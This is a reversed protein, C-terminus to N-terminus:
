RAKRNEGVLFQRCLEGFYGRPDKESGVKFQEIAEAKKNERLFVTGLHYRAESCTKCLSVAELLMVRAQPIQSRQLFMRGLNQYALYFKENAVIAARYSQEAKEFDELAEYVLGLNNHIREANLYLPFELGKLLVDRAEAWRKQEFYMAGLNNYVEPLRPDIEVAKKFAQEAQAYEQQRFYILGLLNRMDASQPASEVGKLAAALARVTDGSQLFEWAFNYQVSARSDLSEPGSTVPKKSSCAALLAFGLILFKIRLTM